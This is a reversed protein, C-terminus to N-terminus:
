WRRLWVGPRLLTLLLFGLLVLGAFEFSVQFGELFANPANAARANEFSDTFFLMLFYAALVVGFMRMVLVLSGAVGRQSRPLAASVMEFSSTQFLGWGFGFIALSLMMWIIAVDGSWLSVSYIGIGVSLAGIFALRNAGFVPILYGAAQASFMMTLPGTAMIAGGVSLSPTYPQAIFYPVLLMVSFATFNVVINTANVIVFAPNRATNGSIGIWGTTRADKPLSPLVRGVLLLFAIVAIPVRFLFIAPWGWAEVLIGGLSPGLATGLGYTMAYAGLIRPRLNEDFLGTALAPGCSLLMATAVGQIVRFVLLWEFSEALGCLGYSVMSAVLGIRFVLLHGFLDGLRGFVLMLCGYTAVYPIIVWRITEVEIGFKETIDPFAINVSSDLPGLLSGAVIAILPV